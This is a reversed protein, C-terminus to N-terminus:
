AFSNSRSSTPSLKLFSITAQPVPDYLTGEIVCDVHIGAGPKFKVRNKACKVNMEALIDMMAEFNWGGFATEIITPASTSNVRASIDAGHRLFTLVLGHWWETNSTYSTDLMQLLQHWASMGCAGVANPSAKHSFLLDIMRVDKRQVAITLLTCRRIERNIRFSRQCAKAEVYNYLGHCFAYDFFTSSSTNNHYWTECCQTTKLSSVQSNTWFKTKKRGIVQLNVAKIAASNMKDLFHIQRVGLAEEAECAHNVCGRVAHWFSGMQDSNGHHFSGTKKIHLLYTGCLTVHPNFNPDAGSTIREWIDDRALFDKVSRHLYQVQATEPSFDTPTPELLGKSRSSLRRRTTEARSLREDIPMPVTDAQMATDFGDEAFSFCLLTLPKPEAANMLQFLISAQKFYFTDLQDLIKQFLDELDSPLISLRTCLDKMTDGDRLGDLLSRVVLTVWLFVGHAKETVEHILFDADSPELRELVKFRESSRLKESVYNVIDAKTLAEVKLRPRNNFAEEFVLWPRSAVCLKVTDYESLDNIFASLQSHDGNFEDLGDIFLLFTHERSTLLGKFAKTLEQWRWEYPDGGWLEYNRWSDAFALPILSRHSGLIQFLLTKLLGEQSMQLDTGSNWFYFGAIISQMDPCWEDHYSRTREETFLYKMLTSKGAGPKGTIWYIPENGRLWEIYSDFTPTETRPQFVWQFTDQYATPIREHRDNMTQFKLRRLIDAEFFDRRQEVTYTSLLASFDSLGQGDNTRWEKKHMTEILDEQWRRNETIVGLLQKSVDASSMSQVNEIRDMKQRLTFLLTTDIQERYRGLRLSLQEIDKESWVSALAQRFSKWKRNKPGEVRLKSIMRDLEDAVRVCDKCLSSLQKEPDTLGYTPKKSFARFGTCLKSLSKSITDLENQAVLSGDVSAYLERSKSIIDGTFQVFQVAAAAVGLATTVEM